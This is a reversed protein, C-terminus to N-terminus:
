GARTNPFHNSQQADFHFVLEEQTQPKGFLYGQGLQCGLLNLFKVQDETEVGEAVLVLDLGDTLAKISQVIAQSVKDSVLDRIFMQDLKIADLPLHSLYGFSSFGTGFDDLAFSIGLKQLEQLAELLENSSNVFASETIELHLREPPLGSEELAWKIDEVFTGRSFQLPSINVSVSTQQPWHCADRCARRLVWRGLKEIFGNAEAIDIFEAPSISGLRPHNWRVLAEAGILKRDILSVQPQYALYFEERELATWLEREIERAREQQASSHPDFKATGSGGTLTANDLALEAQNLATVSPTRCDTSVPSLGIRVGVQAKVGELDFPRELLSAIRRSVEEAMNEPLPQLSFLAFIDGGLRASVSLDLDCEDLRHVIATLLADGVSRGLTANITKFRHLNLAFVYRHREGEVNPSNALVYNLRNLFEARRLAGTLDDFRSMYELRAEQHQKETVDRATVCCVYWNKLSNLRRAKRGSLRSPTVTYEISRGSALDMLKVNQGSAGGAKGSKLYQISHQVDQVLRSPVIDSLLLAGKHHASFGFIEPAKRNIELVEGEEDVVLIADSSDSIIRTLMNRMNGADIKSQVAGWRGATLEYVSRSIAYVWILVQITVTPLDIAFRVQAFYGAATTIGTLLLCFLLQNPLESFRKSHSLFMLIMGTGFLFPLIGPRILERSQILTEAALIHVMPEHVIGHLPAMYSNSSQIGRTGVLVTKGELSGFEVGGNLLQLASYTPVTNSAISFDIAVDTGRDSAVGSITSALSSVPVGDVQRELPLTRVVGDEDIPIDAIAVRANDLFMEHPFRYRPGSGDIADARIIPLIATRGATSLARVLRTDAEVTAQGTFDMDLVINHAGHVLLEEVIRATMDRPWPWKGVQDLSQKDIALYVIEGSAPRQRMEMRTETVLNKLGDLRGSADTLFVLVVLLPLWTYRLM